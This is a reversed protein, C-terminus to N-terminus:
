SGRPRWAATRSWTPANAVTLGPVRGLQSPDHGERVLGHPAVQIQQGPGVHNALQVGPELINRFSLHLRRLDVEAVRAQKVRQQIRTVVTNQEGTGM